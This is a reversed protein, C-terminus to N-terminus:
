KVRKWVEYIPDGKSSFGSHHWEGDVLKGDFSLSAGVRSSDRSFFEINETYKDNDFTYNGGGTGFFEKTEPNIAAWQFRTATLIKITKRPGTQHIQVLKDDQKRATIRWTGALNKNGNDLNSWTTSYNGLKLSLTNNNLSFTVHFTKGIEDKDNSNFEIRTSIQNGQVEYTGGRTLEFRKLKINYRTHSFYGDSLLLIEENDKDNSQWAGTLTNSEFRSKYQFGNAVIFASILLVVLCFKTKM